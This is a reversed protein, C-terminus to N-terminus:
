HYLILTIESTLEQFELLSVYPVHVQIYYFILISLRVLPCFFSFTQNFMCFIACVSRYMSRYEIIHVLLYLCNSFYFIAPDVYLRVSLYVYKLIMLYVLRKSVDQQENYWMQGERGCSIENGEQRRNTARTKFEKMSGLGWSCFYTM